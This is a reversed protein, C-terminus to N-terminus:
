SKPSPVEAIFRYGRRHATEIYRPAKADDGLAQRIVSVHTTLVGESVVVEPWVAKLLEDKTVLQGPREVLYRLLAFAKPTLQLAQEGRWVCENVPDLRFHDFVLFRAAAM